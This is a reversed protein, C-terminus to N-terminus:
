SVASFILSTPIDFPFFSGKKSGYREASYSTNWATWLHTRYKAYCDPNQPNSSNSIRSSNLGIAAYIAPSRFVVCTFAGIKLIPAKKTAIHSVYWCDMVQIVVVKEVVLMIALNAARLRSFFQLHFKCILKASPFKASWNKCISKASPIKQWESKWAAGSKQTVM